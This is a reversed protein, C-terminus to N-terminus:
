TAEMRKWPKRLRKAGVLFEVRAPEKLYAAAQSELLEDAKTM